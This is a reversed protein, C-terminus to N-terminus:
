WTQDLLQRQRRRMGELMATDEADPGDELAANIQALLERNRQRQLFEALALAVVRSRSTKMRRALAETADFLKQDLSVATKIAAM